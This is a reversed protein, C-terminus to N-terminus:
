RSQRARGHRAWLSVSVGDLERRQGLLRFLAGLCENCGWDQALRVCTWVSTRESKSERIGLSSHDGQHKHWTWIRRHILPADM